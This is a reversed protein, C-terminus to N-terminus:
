LRLGAMRERLAAAASIVLGIVVAAMQVNVEGRIPPAEENRRPARRGKRYREHLAMECRLGACLALCAGLRVSSTTWLM